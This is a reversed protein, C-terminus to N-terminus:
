NQKKGFQQFFRQVVEREPLRKHVHPRKELLLRQGEEPTMGYRKMLWCIAVTASRARGAKCHVYVSEGRNAFSEIFEIASVIDEYQPPNFDITPIRLQEVGLREYEAKPGAYEDCTNVVGRVKENFLKQVDGAFPMAGLILVDDIRDWWHRIRIVRGLTVNWALTPLFLLRSLHKNM